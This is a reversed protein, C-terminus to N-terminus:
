FVVPHLLSLDSFKIKWKRDDKCLPLPKEYPKRMKSKKLLVVKKIAIYFVTIKYKHISISVYIEDDTKRVM